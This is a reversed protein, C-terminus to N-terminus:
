VATSSLQWGATLEDRAPSGNSCTGPPPAPTSPARCAPRAARPLHDRHLLEGRGTARSPHGPRRLLSAAARVQAPRVVSGNKRSRAVVSARQTSTSTSPLAASVSAEIAGSSFATARRRGTRGLAGLVTGVLPPDSRSSLLDDVGPAARSGARSRHPTPPWTPAGMYSCGRYGGSPEVLDEPNVPKTAHATFGAALARERVERGAYATLAVAPMAAGQTARVAEILAYGDAGPMALDSVLVDVASGALVELAESVGAALLVEAGRERLVM